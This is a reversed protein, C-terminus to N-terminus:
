NKHRTFKDIQAFGHCFYLDVSMDIAKANRFDEYYDHNEIASLLDSYQHAITRVLGIREMPSIILRPRISITIDGMELEIPELLTEHRQLTFEMYRNCLALEEELGLPNEKAVTVKEMSPIPTMVKEILEEAKSALLARHEKEKNLTHADASVAEGNLLVDKTTSQIIM